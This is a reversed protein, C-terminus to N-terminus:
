GVQGVINDQIEYKTALRSKISMCSCPNWCDNDIAQFMYGCCKTVYWNYKVM